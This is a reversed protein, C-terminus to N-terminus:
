LTSPNDPGIPREPDGVAVPAHSSDKAYRVYSGTPHEGLGDTYGGALVFVEEVDLHRHAPYGRGPELRLLVTSDSGPGEDSALHLPFWSVGLVRTARWALAEADVRLQLGPIKM